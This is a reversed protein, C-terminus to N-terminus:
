QQEKKGNYYVFGVGSILIIAGFITPLMSIHSGTSPVVVEPYNEVVIEATPNEDSITFTYVEDTKKYGKEAGIMKILRLTDDDDYITYNKPYGLNDIEMRLFKACFSHFTSITLGTLNYNPLLQSTREKMEKAVKNTFTIAVIEYPRVNLQEILYAIRYTLVRTKGSGAGAIIRLYQKQSSVAEYQKENLEKKYDM